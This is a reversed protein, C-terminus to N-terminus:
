YRDDFEVTEYNDIWQQRRLSSLEKVCEEKKTLLNNVASINSNQYKKLDREIDALEKELRPIETKYSMNDGIRAGLGILM